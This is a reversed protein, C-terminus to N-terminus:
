DHVCIKHVLFIILLVAEFSYLILGATLVCYSHHVTQVTFHVLTLSTWDRKCMVFSGNQHVVANNSKHMNSYTGTLQM